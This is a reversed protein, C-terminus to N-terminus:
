RPAEPRELGYLVRGRRGGFYRVLVLSGLISLATTFLPFAIVAQAAVEPTANAAPGGAQMAVLQALQPAAERAYQRILPFTLTASLIQYAIGVWAALLTFQRGRRDRSMTAAAAFLLLLGVPLAAAANFRIARAHEAAIRAGVDVIQRLLAEQPETMAQRVPFHTGARPDRLADLSSVLMVGGYVLTFSSLLVLWPPRREPSKARRPGFASPTEPQPKGRADRFGM